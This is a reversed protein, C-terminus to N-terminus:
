HHTGNHHSDAEHADNHHADTEHADTHDTVFMYGAGSHTTIGTTGALGIVQGRTVTDGVKALMESLHFHKVSKGNSMKVEVTWGTGYGWDAMVVEGDVLSYIESGTEALVFVSKYYTDSYAAAAAPALINDIDSPTVDTLTNIPLSHDALFDHGPECISPTDAPICSTAIWWRDGYDADDTDSFLDPFERELVPLLDVIYEKTDSPEGQLRVAEYVTFDKTTLTFYGRTHDIDMLASHAIEFKEGGIEFNCNFLRRYEWIASNLEIAILNPEDKVAYATCPFNEGFYAYGMPAYYRGTKEDEPSYSVYLAGDYALFPSVNVGGPNVVGYDAGLIEEVTQWKYNSQDDAVPLECITDTDDPDPMVSTSVDGIYPPSTVIEDESYIISTAVPLTTTVDAVINENNEGDGASQEGSAGGVSGETLNSNLAAIAGVVLVAALCFCSMTTAATKIHKARIAKEEFYKESKEFVSKAVEEYTKM